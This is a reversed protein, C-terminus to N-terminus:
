KKVPETVIESVMPIQFNKFAQYYKIADALEGKLYINDPITGKGEDWYKDIVDYENSFLSLLVWEPRNNFTVMLDDIRAILLKISETPVVLTDPGKYDVRFSPDNKIIPLNSIREAMKHMFAAIGKKYNQNYNPNFNTAVKMYAVPLFFNVSPTKLMCDWLQNFSTQIMEDTMKQEPPVTNTYYRVIQYYQERLREKRENIPMREWNNSMEINSRTRIVGETDKVYQKYMTVMVFGMLVVVVIFIAVVTSFIKTITKNPTMLRTIPDSQLLKQLLQMDTDDHIVRPRRLRKQPELGPRTIPENDGNNDRDSM